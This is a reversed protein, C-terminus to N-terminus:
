VDADGLDGRRHRAAHRRDGHLREAARQHLGGPHRHDRQRQVRHRWLHAHDPLEKGGAREGGSNRSVAKSVTVTGVTLLDFSDFSQGGRVLRVRPGNSSISAELAAMASSSAGRPPQIGSWYEFGVLLLVSPIAPFITRNIAPSYGCSEVISQLEKINPLRWDSYGAFTSNAAAALANQWNFNSASGTCTTGDWTQGEACRKWMLGTKTHIVTGDTASIDFDATPTTEVLNANPNGATCGPAPQAWAAPAFLFALAAAVLPLARLLVARKAFM